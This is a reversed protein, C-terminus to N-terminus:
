LLSVHGICRLGHAFCVTALPPLDGSCYPHLGRSPIQSGTAFLPSPLWLYLHGIALVLLSQWQKPLIMACFM